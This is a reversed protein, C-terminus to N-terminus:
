LKVLYFSLKALLRFNPWSMVCVNGISVRILRSFRKYPVQSVFMPGTIIIPSIKCLGTACIPCVVFGIQGAVHVVFVVNCWYFLIFIFKFNTHLLTQTAIKAVM